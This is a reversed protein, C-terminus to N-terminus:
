ATYPSAYLSYIPQMYATYLSCIPHIYARHALAPGPSLTPLGRPVPDTPSLTPSPAYRQKAGEDLFEQRNRERKETNDSIQNRLDVNHAMNQEHRAREKAVQVADADRQVQAAPAHAM